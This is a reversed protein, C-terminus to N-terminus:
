ARKVKRVVVVDSLSSYKTSNRAIERADAPTNAMIYAHTELPRTDMEGRKYIALLCDYLKM